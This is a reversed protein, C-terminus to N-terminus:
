WDQSYCKIVVIIQDQSYCKMFIIIQFEQNDFICGELLDNQRIQRHLM